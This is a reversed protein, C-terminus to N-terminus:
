FQCPTIIFRPIGQAIIVLSFVCAILIGLVAMFRARNGAINDEAISRWNKWSILIAAGSMILFFLNTIYLASRQNHSCSWPVLAYSIEMQLLWAVPALLLGSWLSLHQKRQANM